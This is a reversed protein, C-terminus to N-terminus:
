FVEARSSRDNGTYCSSPFEWSTGLLLQTKIISLPVFAQLHTCFFKKERSLSAWVKSLNAVPLIQANHLEGPMQVSASLKKSLFLADSLMCLFLLKCQEQDWSLDSRSSANAQKTLHKSSFTSDPSQTQKQTPFFYRHCKGKMCLLLHSSHPTSAQWQCM